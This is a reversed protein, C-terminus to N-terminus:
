VILFNGVASLVEWETDATICLVRITNRQNISAVHGGPTTTMNGFYITQGGNPNMQWLGVGKGAIEIISGQAAVPPLTLIVLAGGNAIYGTNVTMILSIATEIWTFSPPIVGIFTLQNGVIGITVGDVLVQANMQGLGGNSFDIAGAGGGQLNINSGSPSVALGTDGTLTNLLGTGASLPLWQAVNGQKSNLIFFQPVTTNYWLDGVDYEKFDTPTPIRQRSVINPPNPEKLGQYGLSNTNPTPM